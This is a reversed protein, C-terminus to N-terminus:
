ETYIPVNIKKRKIKNPNKGCVQKFLLFYVHAASFDNKFMKILSCIHFNLSFQYSTVCGLKTSM